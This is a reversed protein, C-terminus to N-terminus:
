SFDKTLFESLSLNKDDIYFDGYPKCMILEDYLVNHKALWQIIVPKLEKHIREVNRNMSRMGRATYITIHYGKNYLLNIKDIM